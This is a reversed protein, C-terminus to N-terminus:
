LLVPLDSGRKTPVVKFTILFKSFGKCYYCKANLMKFNWIKVLHFIIKFLSSLTAGNTAFGGRHFEVVIFFGGM